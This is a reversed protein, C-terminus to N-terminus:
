ALDHFIIWVKVFLFDVGPQRVANPVEVVFVKNEEEEVGGDSGVHDGVPKEFQHRVLLDRHVCPIVQHDDFRFAEADNQGADQGRKEAKM